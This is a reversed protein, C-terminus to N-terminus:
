DDSEMVNEVKFTNLLKRAGHAEHEPVEVYYNPDTGGLFAHVSQLIDEPHFGNARLLSEVIGAEAESLSRYVRVSM